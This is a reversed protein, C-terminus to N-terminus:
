RQCNSRCLFAIWLAKTKSVNFGHSRVDNINGINVYSWYMFDSDYMLIRYPLGAPSFRKSVESISEKRPSLPLDEISPRLHPPRWSASRKDSFSRKTEGRRRNKLLALVRWHRNRVSCWNHFNTYMYGERWRPGCVYVAGLRSSNSFVLNEFIKCFRTLPRNISNM